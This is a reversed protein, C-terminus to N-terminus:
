VRFAYLFSGHSIYIQRLSPFPSNDVPQSGLKQHPRTSDLSLVDRREVISDENICREGIIGIGVADLQMWSCSALSFWDADAM